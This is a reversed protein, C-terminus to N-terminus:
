LPVGEVSTGEERIVGAQSLYICLILWHVSWAPIWWGEDSLGADRGACTELGLWKRDM